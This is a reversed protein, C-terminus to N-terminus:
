VETFGASLMGSGNKLIFESGAIRLDIAIPRTQRFTNSGFLM